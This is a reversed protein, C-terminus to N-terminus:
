EAIWSDIDTDVLERHTTQSLHVLLEHPVTQCLPAVEIFSNRDFSKASYVCVEEGITPESLHSIDIMTINMSVFGVIPCSIGSISMEGGETLRRDVGDYYGIPVIAITMNRKALYHFDYGITELKKIKKIQVIHTFLKLTPVLWVHKAQVCGYLAIGTRAMNGLRGEFHSSNLLGESNAIHVWKPHINKSELIHRAQMFHEVQQKTLDRKPAGSQAFHSMLGEIELHTENQIYTVLSTLEDLPVGERHMGTDVFIHIKAQPQYQSLAQATKLDSVAFSFPLPKTHLSVPDVGGMILINTKIGANFLEYAEFLSDVCFFPAGCGDLAKAVLDIGHGYANSKLVPAVKINPNIESLVEYNNVLGLKSVQIHNLPQYHRPSFPYLNQM